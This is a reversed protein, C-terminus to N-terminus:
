KIYGKATSKDFAAKIHNISKVKAGLRTKETYVEVVDFRMRRKKYNRSNYQLACRILRAQKEKTVAAAPRLTAPSPESYTRTKVEVFVRTGDHDAIIDIEGAEAVYNREIILYGQKKLYRAAAIEGFNGLIRKPTLIELIKM